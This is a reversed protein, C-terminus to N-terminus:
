LTGIGPGTLRVGADTLTRGVNLVWPGWDVQESRIFSVVAMMAWHEGLEGTAGSGHFRFTGMRGGVAAPNLQGTWVAVVEGLGGDEGDGGSKAKRHLRHVEPNEETANHDHVSRWVFDEDHQDAGVAVTFSLLTQKPSVKWDTRRDIRPSASTAPAGDDGKSSAAPLAILARTRMVSESGCAGVVSATSPDPGDFLTIGHHTKNYRMTFSYLPSPHKGDSKHHQRDDEAIIFLDTPEKAARSAFYISFATPFRAFIGPKIDLHYLPHDEDKSKFLGKLSKM